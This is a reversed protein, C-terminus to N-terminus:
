QAQHAKLIPQVQREVSELNLSAPEQMPPFEVATQALESVAKQGMVPRWMERGFFENFYAAASDNFSERRM